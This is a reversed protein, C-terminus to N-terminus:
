WGHFFVDVIDGHKRNLDPTMDEAEKLWNVYFSDHNKMWQKKGDCSREGPM